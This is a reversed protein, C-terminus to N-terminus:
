IKVLRLATGWPDTVEFGKGDTLPRPAFGAAECRSRGAALTEDDAVRLAFWALGMRAADREGAGKSHWM